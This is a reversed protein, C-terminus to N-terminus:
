QSLARYFRRGEPGPTPDSLSATGTTNTTLLTSWVNLDPSFQIDYNAGERGLLDFQFDGSAGSRSGLLQPLRTIGIPM